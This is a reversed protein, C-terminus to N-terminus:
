FHTGLCAQRSTQKGVSQAAVVMLLIVSSCLSGFPVWSSSPMSNVHTEELGLDPRRHSILSWFATALSPCIGVGSDGGGGTGATGTEVKETCFLISLIYTLVM